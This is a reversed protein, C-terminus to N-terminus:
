RSDGLGNRRRYDDADFLTKFWALEGDFAAVAPPRDDGEPYSLEYHRLFLLNCLVHDLHHEGSEADQDEGLYWWALLHRLTCNFCESWPMGKAWNWSRYKLTGGMLVRAAGALLHLPLLSFAVKGGSKRAGSGRQDSNLDGVAVPANVTSTM